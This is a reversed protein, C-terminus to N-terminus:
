KLNQVLNPSNIGNVYYDQNALYTTTKLLLETIEIMLCALKTHFFFIIGLTGLKINFM